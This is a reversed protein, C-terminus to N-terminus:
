PIFAENVNTYSGVQSGGGAVYVIGNITGAVAGHRPTLMPARTIWSNTAPDYEENAPFAGGTSTREGGMVQARGDLTGVVMARRGTPMSARAKWMNTAPDYMEVATLTDDPTTGDANRTRGGFVYLKGDLAASGLNDRRVDMSAVKDWTNTVPNYVSVSALSSGRDSMGGAVYFKGDIARAAAGSRAVNMPSLTKWRNTAPDYVAANKVAGSFPATSGGFAYLKGNLKAVAPNEVASGPLPSGSAWSDTAPDYIGMGSRHGASTKGAVSYLKDGLATGGADLVATPMPKKVVWAGPTPASPKLATVKGAGLEGVYITGDPGQALPLPNSFGSALQRAEVVSRGDSSLKVRTIDDGVSYNAILLEGELTGGFADSTYEIMGDPSKHLGLNYVPAVYNSPRSVGQYSGNKFVCENRYPNPHGYYKGQMLRELEDPQEGPNNGGQNWLATDGFGTCPSAPKPPYTGTIGLGNDAGYISGNTHHVFDYMNRLGTAFPVVDCPSPGYSNEPTACSGDFNAAGVDAVVLAASLPQEARSGFETNATNPAGAGTNGGVAVYLKGDPGFHLSNVAHNAIARPLGTIVDQRTTFGSGSLRTVTSSNLRGDSTSPNSHAVWLVVNSATSQPDITIGLTLRSGLTTIVEDEVVHKDDDLTLAHIKGFLETVYLRDDPGWVMSTPNPVPFSSRDFRITGSPPPPTAEAEVSFGDFLYSLPNTAERHTAFIGSFSRTGITPDIGAADFSFFEPPAVFTGLRVMQAGNIKYFATVTRDSPDARLRLVVKASTLDLASSYKAGASAAGKNEMLAHIFTGNPKSVVVLKVYNDEDNGFWLGAQEYNGSGKPPNLMTTEIVSVQSPADIGVALANDQSDASSFMIGETTKVKLTGQLATDVALNSPLYGTGNTPKDVYTFGTGVGNADDIKGHDQSFDLKYPLDVLIDSCPLPSCQGGTTQGVASSALYPLLVALLVLAFLTRASRRAPANDSRSRPAQFTQFGSPDNLSKPSEPENSRWTTKM